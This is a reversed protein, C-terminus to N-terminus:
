SKNLSVTGRTGSTLEFVGKANGTKVLDLTIKLGDPISPDTAVLKGTTMDATGTLQRITGNQSRLIITAAGSPAVSATAARVLGVDAGTRNRVTGYYNGDFTTTANTSRAIAVVALDGGTNTLIITGTGVTTLQGTATTRSGDRERRQLTIQGNSNVSGTPASSSGGADSARGNSDVRLSFLAAEDKDPGATFYYIGKFVGIYEAPITPVPTTSGGGGGCGQLLGLAPLTVLLSVIALCNKLKMKHMRM